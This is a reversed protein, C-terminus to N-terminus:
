LIFLSELSPVTHDLLILRRALRLGEPTLRLIDQREASLIGLDPSDGRSRLFLLSSTVELEHDRDGRHVLVGGIFRRTRPPPNEGWAFQTQLRKIRLTLSSKNEEFHYLGPLFGGSGIGEETIRVPMLYCADETLLSLWEELKWHDLLYAERYLFTVVQLYIEDSLTASVSM